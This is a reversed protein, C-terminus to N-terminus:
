FQISIARPSVHDNVIRVQEHILGVWFYPTIQFPKDVITIWGVVTTRKGVPLYYLKRGNYERTVLDGSNGLSWRFPYPRSSPNGEFDVGVRMVGPEEPFGFANFNESTTYVTGPVPGTTRIPVTGINAVTMTVVLTGGLPVVTPNWEAIGVIEARPVGGEEIVLPATARVVSGVDDVAEAVVTYTGDPPPPANADVGADYDYQHLGPQGPLALKKKEELTTVFKGKDDEIWVRVAAPLTLYYSITVRDEIGDQNPSFKGPYVSFNQLEPRQTRADKIALTTEFQGAPGGDVPQAVVALKYQGDPLVQGDINGGFLATYDGESRRRDARFTYSKGDQSVLRITLNSVQGISYKIETVDDVGDGNPSISTPRVSVRSLANGSANCGVMMLSTVLLLFFLAM